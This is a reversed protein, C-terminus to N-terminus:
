NDPDIQTQHRVFHWGDDLSHERSKISFTGISLKHGM